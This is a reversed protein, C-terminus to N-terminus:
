ALLSRIDQSRDNIVDNETNIALTYYNNKEQQQHRCRTPIYNVIYLSPITIISLVNRNTKMVHM